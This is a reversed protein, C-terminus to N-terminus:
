QGDPGEALSEAALQRRRLRSLLLFFAVVALLNLVAKGYVDIPKWRSSGIFGAVMCLLTSGFTLAWRHMDNWSASRIVRGLLLYVLVAWAIGAALVEGFPIQPEKPAFVFSMLAYFPMGLVFGLVVVIWALPTGRAPNPEGTRIHRAFYALTTLLAIAFVGSGMILAGPHYPPLHFIMPRVRKIWAYWAIRSGILFLIAAVFLGRDRLWPTHRMGPFILDTVQIPVLVVWVSEYGLMFLFYIWNVGWSRGYHVLAGPFPLPALSTQQIVFEEAISLGLGLLLMSTWGGRWRRVVERIILAGCGWVLIEPVLAFVVSVKTAGSLVEAILPSLIALTLSPRWGGRQPASAAVKTIERMIPIWNTAPPPAALCLVRNPNKDCLKLLLSKETRGCRNRGNHEIQDAIEAIGEAAIGIAAPNALHGLELCLTRDRCLSAAVTEPLETLGTV